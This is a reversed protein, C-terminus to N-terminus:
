VTGNQLKMAVHYRRLEKLSSSELRFQCRKQVVAGGILPQSVFLGYDYTMETVVLVSDDKRRPPPLSGVEDDWARM